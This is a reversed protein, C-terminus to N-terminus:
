GGRMALQRPTMIDIEFDLKSNQALSKLVEIENPGLPPDPHLVRVPRDRPVEHQEAIAREIWALLTLPEPAHSAWWDVAITNHSIALSQQTLWVERKLCEDTLLNLASAVDDKQWENAEKRVPLRPVHDMLFSGREEGSSLADLTVVPMGSVKAVAVERQCWARSAYLDTRVTLLASNGANKILEDAWDHGAQLDHADFFENLRTAAIFQRVMRVLEDVDNGESPNSRKTHSLFVTLRADDDNTLFQALGQSLDRCRLGLATDGDALPWTAAIQQFAGFLEGLKTQDTARPHLSYPLISVRKADRMQAEVLETVYRNWASGDKQVASAMGIGLIPVLAIYEAPALGNPGTQDDMYCPQPSDDGSLWGISRTAVHIGGGIIGSFSAGRFHKIFELALKKGADDEPHWIVYIELIPPLM